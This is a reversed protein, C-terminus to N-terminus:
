EFSPLEEGPELAQALLLEMSRRYCGIVLLSGPERLLSALRPDRKGVLGCLDRMETVKVGKTRLTEGLDDMRGPEIREGGCRCFLAHKKATM